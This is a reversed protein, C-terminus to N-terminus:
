VLAGECDAAEATPLPKLNTRKLSYKQVTRWAALRKLCTM